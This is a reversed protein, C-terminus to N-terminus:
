PGDQRQLGAPVLRPVCRLTRDGGAAWMMGPTLDWYSALRDLVYSANGPRQALETLLEGLARPGLTFLHEAGRRLCLRDFHTM